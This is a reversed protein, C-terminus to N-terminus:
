NCGTAHERVNGEDRYYLVKEFKNTNLKIVIEQSQNDCENNNNHYVVKNYM